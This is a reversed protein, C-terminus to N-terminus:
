LPETIPKDEWIIQVFIGILLALPSYVCLIRPYISGVFAPQLVDAPVGDPLFAPTILDLAVMGIAFSELVGTSFVRSARIIGVLKDRVTNQVEISLYYYSCWIYFTSLCYKFNM